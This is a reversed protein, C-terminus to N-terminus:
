TRWFWKIRTFLMTVLVAITTLIVGQLFGLGVNLSFYQLLPTIELLGAVPMILLDGAVYAIMPNQGSMVLFKTSRVYGYFDCIINFALLAM